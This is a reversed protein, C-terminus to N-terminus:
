IFGGEYFDSNLFYLKGFGEMHNQSWSGLYKNGGAISYITHNIYCTTIYGSLFYAIVIMSSYSFYCFPVLIIYSVTGSYQHLVNIILSVFIQYICTKLIKLALM